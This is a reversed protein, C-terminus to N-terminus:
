SGSSSTRRTTTALVQPNCAPLPRTTLVRPFALPHTATSPALLLSPFPAVPARKLVRMLRVGLLSTIQSAGVAVVILVAVWIAVGEIWEGEKRQEPLASGLVTSVQQLPPPPHRPNSDSSALQLPSSRSNSTRM